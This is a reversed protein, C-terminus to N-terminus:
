LSVTRKETASRRVALAIELARIGDDLTCVPQERGEICAIFHRLEDVFLANREFGAPPNVVEWIKTEARYCHAAGDASDWRITGRQGTIRLWHESPRQVFDLHVHAVVGSAFRLHADATDEVTIELGGMYGLTASVETVEGILWRLYDFPHCLTLTVGGGLDPRTAYSSHYDEWPHWDPQYEGWHAQASVVPGIAGEELWRKIQCLGPHFRFQFGVLVVLHKAAVILRLEDLGARDHAVPKEVLLHTGARAAALAVPLHLATPNAIIAAAPQTDLAAQLDYEVRLGDLENTPLTSKGTRYVVVDDHGLARLNRLHRRGVSGFGAIIIRQSHGDAAGTPNANIVGAQTTTM